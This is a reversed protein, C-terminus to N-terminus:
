DSVPGDRIGGQFNLVPSRRVLNLLEFFARYRNKFMSEMDVESYDFFGRGTKPGIQGKEMKEVISRPPKFHPQGLASHLYNGAHYLIDVGGLDIFEILGLVALRFGFGAKIATDIDEGTTVGEELIRVAENM